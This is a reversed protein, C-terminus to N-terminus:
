EAAVRLEAAVADLLEIPAIIDFDEIMHHQDSGTVALTWYDPDEGFITSVQVVTASGKAHKRPRAWYFADPVLRTMVSVGWPHASSVLIKKFRWPQCKDPVTGDGQRGTALFNSRLVCCPSPM